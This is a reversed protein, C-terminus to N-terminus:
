IIEMKKRKYVIIVFCFDLENKVLDVQKASKLNRPNKEYSLQFSELIRTRQLCINTMCAM